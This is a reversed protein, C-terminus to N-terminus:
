LAEEPKLKDWLRDWFSDREEPDQPWDLYTRTKVLRALRHHASLLRSPIKELFVLILVDKHEVQLRSTALQMELSCWNSRLYHRSVLCLTYRSEYLSDTINDVVDKGLQFDRTHLCLRLFPPGRQELSPLLEKLVWSEDKGSYSVFADYRYRVRGDERVAQEIWARAIHYLPLILHRSMQHVFVALLLLVVALSTSIFLVFEIEFVCNQKAFVQMNPREFGDSSLCQLDNLGPLKIEVQVQRNEKVWKIFNANDCNCFLHLHYFVLNQLSILPEFFSAYMTVYDRFALILLELSRLDKTLTGDISFHRCDILTLDKLKTLNHFIAPVNSQKSFDVADFELVKLHVLKNIHTLDGATDSHDSRFFFNEVNKVYKAIFESGCLVQKGRAHLSTVSAFFPRECDEITVVITSVYFTLNHKLVVNSGIILEMPEVYVFSLNTLHESINGFIHTLNWRIVFEPLLTKFNSFYLEQLNVFHRFAMEEISHLPNEQLDLVLLNHLGDFVHYSIVSIDNNWFSLIRLSGLEMFAFPEITSVSSCTINLTELNVLCSFQHSYINSISGKEVSLVSLWSVNGPSSCISSFHPADLGQGFVLLASLNTMFYIFSLNIPQLDYVSIQLYELAICDEDKFHSFNITNSIGLSLQKTSLKSVANCINEVVLEDSSYDLNDVSKIDSRPLYNLLTDNYAFSLKSLDQFFDIAGPQFHKIKYFTLQARASRPLIANRFAFEKGYTCNPHDLFEDNSTTFIIKKLSTFRIIRCILDSFVSSTCPEIFSFNEIQSLDYFVDTEVVSLNLGSIELEKLQPLDKFVKRSLVNACSCHFYLSLRRLNSLGQFAGPNIENFCGAIQLYELSTFRSFTGSDLSGYAKEVEMNICLNEIDSPLVALDVEFDIINECYAGHEGFCDSIVAALKNLQCNQLHWGHTSTSFLVLAILYLLSKM